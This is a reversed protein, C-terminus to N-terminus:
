LCTEIFEAATLRTDPDQSAAVPDHSRKNWKPDPHQLGSGEEDVFPEAIPPDDDPGQDDEDLDQTFGKLNDEAQWALMKVQGVGEPVGGTFEDNSEVFWQVSDLGEGMEVAITFIYCRPADDRDDNLVVAGQHGAVPPALAALLCGTALVALVTPRTLTM